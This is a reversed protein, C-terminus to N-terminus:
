GALRAAEDAGAQPAIRRPIAPGALDLRPLFGDPMDARSGLRARVAEVLPGDGHFPRCFDAHTRAAPDVLDPSVDGFAVIDSEIFFPRNGMDLYSEAPLGEALLIDHGDLEVHWYEVADVEVRAITANNVLAMAPILVEGLVDVCISHGPSVFLDSAPHNSAFAHATIRVPMVDNPRAHRRADIRRSGIWRIPRHAGSSTVALDGIALNEVAIDGRATRIRTGTVFCVSVTDLAAATGTAQGDNAAFSITRPTTDPSPTVNDFTVAELATQFQAVTASKDASTLTLTGTGNYTGVINGETNANATFGLADGAKFDTITVTATSLTQNDADTVTVGGDVVVPMSTAGAPTFKTTGGTATVVPANNVATAAVTDSLTNSPATGDTTQFTVTRTKDTGFDDPNQSTSSFAVSDLVTKYNAASTTGALTLVHSTASYTGTIGTSGATFSLTDGAFSGSAITVTAGTLTDGDPDTATLGPDVPIAAAGETYGPTGGGSVLQPPRDITAAFSEQATVTGDSVTFMYTDVPHSGTAAGDIATSNNAAYSFSGNANLTM